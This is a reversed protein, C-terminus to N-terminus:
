KELLYGRPTVMKGGLNQTMANGVFVTTFMDAQFDRLQALTLVGWEEGERGINKAWGCPTKEDKHRLLIDCAKQLYDKRTKSAPNYLCLLFDAVGVAELRREILEWPTLLDSLSVVAFDHGLPAGLLAAGAMAASVGPVIEVEIPPYHSALEYILGAMGYVGADGSCVLAVTTGDAATQLAAHCREVERKMGTSLTKKEPFLHDVLEIYKTYGCLVEAETLAALAAGTMGQESGPGLGVVYLKKM